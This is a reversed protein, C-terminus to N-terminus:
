VAWDWESRWQAMVARIFALLILNIQRKICFEFIHFVVIGASM